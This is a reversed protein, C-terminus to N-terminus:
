HKVMVGVSVLSPMCWYQFEYVKDAFAAFAFKIYELDAQSPVSYIVRFAPVGDISFPEV